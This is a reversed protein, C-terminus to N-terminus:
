PEETYAGKPKFLKCYAILSKCDIIENEYPNKRLEALKEEEEKKFAEDELRRKENRKLYDKKKRM